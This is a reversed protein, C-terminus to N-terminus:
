RASRGTYLGPAGREPPPLENTERLRRAAEPTSAVWQLDRVQIRDDDEDGQLLRVIADDHGRYRGFHPVPPLDIPPSRLPRRHAWVFSGEVGDRLRGLPGEGRVAGHLTESTLMSLAVREFSHGPWPSSDYPPPDPRMLTTQSASADLPVAIGWNGQSEMFM